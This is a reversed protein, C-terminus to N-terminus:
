AATRLREIHALLEPAPTFWERRMSLHKTFQRLRRLEIAKSGPEIALLESDPPYFRRRITFNASYGIKIHEGIRLYYIIPSDEGPMPIADLDRAPEPEPDAQDIAEGLFRMVQAAHDLCIPFPAAPLSPADCFEGGENAATCTTSLATFHPM